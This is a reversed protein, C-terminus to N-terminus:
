LFFTSLTLRNLSFVEQVGEINIPFDPARGLLQVPTGEIEVKHELDKECYFSPIAKGKDWEMHCGFDLM